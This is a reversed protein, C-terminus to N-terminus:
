TQESSFQSDAVGYATLEGLTFDGWQEQEIADADPLGAYYETVAQELAKRKTRRTHALSRNTMTVEIKDLSAPSL